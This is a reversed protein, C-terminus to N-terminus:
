VRRKISQYRSKFVPTKELASVFLIFLITNLVDHLLTGKDFQNKRQSRFWNRVRAFSESFKAALFEIEERKPYKNKSFM